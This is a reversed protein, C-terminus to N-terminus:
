KSSSSSEFQGQLRRPHTRSRICVGDVLVLTAAGRSALCRGQGQVLLDQGRDELIVDLSRLSVRDGEVGVGLDLLMVKAHRMGHFWPPERQAVLDDEGVAHVSGHVEVQGPVRCLLFQLKEVRLVVDASKLLLEKRWERM